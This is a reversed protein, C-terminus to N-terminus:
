RTVGKRQCAECVADVQKLTYRRAEQMPVKHLQINREEMIRGCGVCVVREGSYVEVYVPGAMRIKYQRYGYYGAYILAAIIALRIITQVASKKEPM